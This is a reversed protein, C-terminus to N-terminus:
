LVDEIAQIFASIKYTFFGVLMPILELHILGYEPVVIGNWRNYIMVLVVPILLRPQGVGGKVLGSAGQTQISDVSNGLMRLYALSGLLGVGYSAAVEPSYSVYTSIVGFGGIGLTLLQLKNKLKIYEKMSQAALVKPDGNPHRLERLMLDGGSTAARTDSNWKEQKRPSPKQRWTQYMNKDTEIEEAKEARFRKSPSALEKSLDVELNDLNLVRNISIFGHTREEKSPNSPFGSGYEAPDQILMKMRGVFNRNWIYDDSTLPDDDVLWYNRPNTTSPAGGYEAPSVGACLKETNNKPLKLKPPKKEPPQDSSSSRHSIPTATATVSLYCNLGAM